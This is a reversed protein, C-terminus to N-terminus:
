KDSVFNDLHKIYDYTKIIPTVFGGYSERGRYLIGAGMLPVAPKAVVEQADFFPIATQAVDREFDTHTFELYQGSSGFNVMSPPGPSKTPVDAKKLDIKSRRQTTGYVDHGKKQDVTGNAWNFLNFHVVFYIRGNILNFRVGTVVYGEMTEQIDDLAMSRESYTLMFYDKKNYVGPDTIKYDDVPKWRVTNQDILGYPLLKGEQIQIHIIKNKKVLRVGTIVRNYETDANVSRLSVYRDSLVHKDDCICMCYHCRVFWRTWSKIPLLHSCFNKKGLTRGSKYKVFEYKRLPSTSLCVDANSEIFICEYIRGNCQREKQCFLSTHDYCTERKTSYYNSCTNRCTKSPSMDAENQIHGQLFLTFQEFNKGEKFRKPDCKWIDNPLAFDLFSVTSKVRKEYAKRSIEAQKLADDEQFLKKIFCTFQEMVYAKLNALTFVNYLNYSLQQPSQQYNKCWFSNWLIAPIQIMLTDNKTGNALIGSIEFIREISVKTGSKKNRVHYLISDLSIYEHDELKSLLGKQYERFSEYNYHIAKLEAYLNLFAPLHTLPELSEIIDEPVQQLKQDYEYFRRVLATEDDTTSSWLEKELDHFDLRLKDVLLFKKSALVEFTLLSLILM